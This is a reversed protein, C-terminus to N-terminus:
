DQTKTPSSIHLIAKTFPFLMCSDNNKTCVKHVAPLGGTTLRSGHEFVTFHTTKHLEQMKTHTLLITRMRTIHAYARPTHLICAHSSMHPCKKNCLTTSWEAHPLSPFSRPLFNHHQQRWRTRTTKASTFTSSVKHDLAMGVCRLM